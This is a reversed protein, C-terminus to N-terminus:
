SVVTNKPCNPGSQSEPPSFQIPRKRVSAEFRLAPQYPHRAEGDGDGLALTLRRFSGRGIYTEVLENRGSERATVACRAM